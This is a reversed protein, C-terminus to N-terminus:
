SLISKWVNRCNGYAIKIGTHAILQHIIWNAFLAALMLYIAASTYAIAKYVGRKNTVLALLIFIQFSSCCGAHRTSRLGTSISTCLHASAQDPGNAPLLAYLADLADQNDRGGGISHYCPLSYTWSTTHCCPTTPSQPRFAALLPYGPIALHQAGGLDTADTMPAALFLYRYATYGLAALPCLLLWAGHWSAASLSDEKAQM